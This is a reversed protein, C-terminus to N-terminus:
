KTHNLLSYEKSTLLEMIENVMEQKHVITGEWEVEECNKDIIKRLKDKFWWDDKEVKKTM